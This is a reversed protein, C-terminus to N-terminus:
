QGFPRVKADNFLEEGDGHLPGSKTMADLLEASEPLLSQLLTPPLLDYRFTIQVGHQQGLAKVGRDICYELEVLKFPTYYSLPAPVRLDIHKAKLLAPQHAPPTARSLLWLSAYGLLEIAAYLPTDSAIKLEILEYHETGRCHALDIARRGDAASKILGSAVPIQNAWDTRNTSACASAIARELLVEPSKNKPSVRTQRTWRWNQQSRDKNGEAGGALWNNEIVRYVIEALDINAPLCLSHLASRHRLKAIGLQLCVANEVGHVLSRTQASGAENDTTM